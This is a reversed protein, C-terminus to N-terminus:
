ALVRGKGTHASEAFAITLLSTQSDGNTPPSPVSGNEKRKIGGAAVRDM